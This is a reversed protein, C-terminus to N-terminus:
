RSYDENGAFMYVAAGIINVDGTAGTGAISFDYGDGVNLKLRHRRKTPDFSLTQAARGDVYVVVSLTGSAVPEFFLELFDFRKRKFRLTPDSYSFDEHATQFSATYEDGDKTRADQETLWVFGAEGVIPRWLTDEYRKLALADASDRESIVVKVPKSSFDLRITITNTLAGVGPVSFIAVRHEPYWVSAVQDLKQLNVNAAIWNHFGLAQSLNSTAIGGFTDVASLMHFQGDAAMFLVDDDIPLVAYPSPACGIAESKTRIYWNSTTLDTDDLYFIGRPYKWFILVGQYDVGCWIREGISSAVRLNFASTTTFDEHNDPDSFYVRHPDNLNGWGVLRNNHITGNIPQRRPDATAAWDSPPTAINATTTGDGALVQVPDVGNFYALKRPNTIDSAAEKGCQVFRGPRGIRSLGSKLTTADLNTQTLSTPKDKFLNGATTASILRGGPRRAYAVAANSSRWAEVTVLSTNNTVSEIIQTEGAIVIKDGPAHNTFSTGAGTVVDSGATTSVTGAPTTEVESFFDYLAVITPTDTDIRYNICVQGTAGTREAAETFGSGPASSVTTSSAGVGAVLLVPAQALSNTPGVTVATGEGSKTKAATGLSWATTSTFNAVAISSARDSAYTVTITDAALLATTLVAYFSRYHGSVVLGSSVIASQGGLATYTNGKSDAVSTIISENITSLATIAVIVLSGLAYGGVPVTVNATTAGNVVKTATASTGGAAIGSGFFTVIRGSWPTSASYTGTYTPSSAVGAPDYAAAGPEKRISDDVLTLGSAIILEGPQQQHRNDRKTLGLTGIPLQVISGEYPM